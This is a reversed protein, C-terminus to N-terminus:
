AARGTAPKGGIISIVPLLEFQPGGVRKGAAGRPRLERLVDCQGVAELHELSMLYTTTPKRCSPIKRIKRAGGGGRQFGDYQPM